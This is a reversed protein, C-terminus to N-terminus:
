STEALLRGQKQSKTPGEERQGVRPPAVGQERESLGGGLHAGPGLEDPQERAVDRAVRDRWACSLLEDHGSRPGLRAGSAPASCSHRRAPPMPDISITQM